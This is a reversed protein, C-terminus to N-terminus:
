VGPQANVAGLTASGPIPNSNRLYRKEQLAAMVELTVGAMITIVSERLQEYTSLKIGSKSDGHAIRNRYGLLQDIGGDFQAFLNHSFGLRFLNKRLVVPKLNSETDVVDQPITVRRRSLDMAREVFERDRAFRHLKTDEPAINRFEECKSDPNRLARFVDALSAAAIAHTAEACTIAEQNVANVYLTLAFKCFGEFHAYLLLVLVRRYQEKEEEKELDAGRNQFFRIEDQRWTRELELQARFDPISV